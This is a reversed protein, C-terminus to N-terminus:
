KGPPEWVPDFGTGGAMLYQSARSLILQLPGDGRHVPLLVGTRSAADAFDSNELADLAAESDRFFSALEPDRREVEYLDVPEQINVVRTRVV